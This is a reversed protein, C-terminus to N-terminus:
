GAAPARLASPVRLAGAKLATLNLAINPARERIVLLEIAQRTRPGPIQKVTEPPLKSGWLQRNSKAFGVKRSAYWKNQQSASGSNLLL